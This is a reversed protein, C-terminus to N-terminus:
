KGFLLLFVVLYKSLDTQLTALARKIHYKVTNISIDLERAIEEYKKEEFRSKKFVARCEDPLRDISDNIAAELERELLNGLPYSDSLLYREEPMKESVLGSLPVENKEYQTNLYNICRNRVARALYARISISINLTERIEWVHFITDGVITEATFHDKVYGNAIQCLAVYHHEYIYKYSKENGQKLQEIILEEINEM